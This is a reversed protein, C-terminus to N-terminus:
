YTIIQVLGIHDGYGFRSLLIQCLQKRLLLVRETDAHENIVGASGSCFGADGVAALAVHFLAVDLLRELV